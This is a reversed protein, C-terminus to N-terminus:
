PGHDPFQFTIPTKFPCEEKKKHMCQECFCGAVDPLLEYAARGPLRGWVQRLQQGRVAGVEAGGGSRQATCATYMLQGCADNSLPTLVALHM